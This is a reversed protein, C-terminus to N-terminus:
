RTGKSKSVVGALEGLSTDPQSNSANIKYRQEKFCRAPPRHRDGATTFQKRKDQVKARQFLLQTKLDDASLTTFQKRKDQVKARQFLAENFALMPANTTFQKRKDQVKARQFM